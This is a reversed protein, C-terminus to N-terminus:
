GHEDNQDAAPLDSRMQGRAQQRRAMPNSHHVM